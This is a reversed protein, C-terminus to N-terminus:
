PLVQLTGIEMRPSGGNLPVLPDHSIEPYYLGALLRYSGPSLSGPIPINHASNLILGPTWRQYPTHTGGPAGDAQSVKKGTEDVLHVFASVTEGSRKVSWTLHVPVVEGARAPEFTRVGELRMFGYDAGIAAVDWTRATIGSSVVVMFAGVGIWVLLPWVRWVARLGAGQARRVLDMAGAAHNLLIFVVLWGAGTTLRGIWVAATPGWALEVTHKGPPIEVSALGLGTAPQAGVQVGDVSVRWSPFYFQHFLLRFTQETTVLFQQKLLGTRTPVVAEFDIPALKAYQEWPTRGAETAENISNASWIPLFDRGWASDRTFRLWGEWSSSWHVFHPVEKNTQYDLRVFACASLYVSILVSLLPVVTERTRRTRGLSELCAALMLAGGLAAFMQWRWPFRINDLLFAGRIWLWASAETMMWATGLTLPLTIFMFLRLKRSQITLTTMLGAFAAPVFFLPLSPRQSPFNYNYFMGLNVLKGWPLLHNLSMGSSLGQGTLVWRLELLAPLIYWAALLLGIAVPALSSGWIRLLSAREKHNYVTILVLAAGLLLLAMLMSLNHTVALGAWALGAKAFLLLYSSTGARKRDWTAAQITCLAVLPLWTFASLEPFAGRTFLDYIRYPFFQYCIVSVIAPWLSVYLRSLRFMWWASLAFSLSITIRFSSVLDSGVLHLLAAPYYFGPSYYNFVPIGNGFMLDPFWRPFIVGARLANTLAITRPFHIAADHTNVPWDATLGYLVLSSSIALLLVALRDQLYTEEKVRRVLSGDHFIM